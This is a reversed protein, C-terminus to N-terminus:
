FNNQNHELEDARRLQYICFNVERLLSDTPVDNVMGKYYDRIYLFRNPFWLQFLDDIVNIAEGATLPMRYIRFINVNLYPWM